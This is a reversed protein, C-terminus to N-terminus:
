SRTSAAKLIQIVNQVTHQHQATVVNAIMLLALMAIISKGM